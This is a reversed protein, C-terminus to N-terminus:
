GRLDHRTVGTPDVLWWVGPLADDTVRIEFSEGPFSEMVFAIGPPLDTLEVLVNSTYSGTQLRGLEMRYFIATATDTAPVEAQSLAAAFQPGGGPPVPGAPTIAPACATLVALLVLIVAPVRYNLTKM